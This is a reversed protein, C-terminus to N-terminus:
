AGGEVKRIMNRKWRCVEVHEVDGLFFQGKPFEEGKYGMETKIEDLLVDEKVNRMRCGNGKAGLYRGRCVWTKCKVSGASDIARRTMYRNIKFIRHSAPTPSLLGMACSCTRKCKRTMWRWYSIM